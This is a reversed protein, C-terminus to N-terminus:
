LECTHIHIGRPGNLITEIQNNNNNNNCCQYLPHPFTHILSSIMVLIAAPASSSSSSSPITCHIKEKYFSNIIYNTFFWSDLHHHLLILYDKWDNTETLLWYFCSASILDLYSNYKNFIHVYLIYVTLCRCLASQSVIRHAARASVHFLSLFLSLRRKHLPSQCGNHQWLLHYDNCWVFWSIESLQCRSVFHLFLFFSFHGDTPNHISLPPPAVLFFNM